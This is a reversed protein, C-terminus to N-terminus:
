KDKMVESYIPARPAYHGRLMIDLNSFLVADRGRLVIPRVKGNVEVRCEVVDDLKLEVIERKM